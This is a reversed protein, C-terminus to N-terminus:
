PPIDISVVSNVNLENLGIAISKNAASDALVNLNRLIHFYKIKRFSNAKYRIRRILRAIREKKGRSGGNLEQIILKSDGFVMVEDVGKDKLQKLGQWLGYTEAMNNSDYGINWFYEVVKNGGPDFIVGGGGARGPNGKSSGDFFLKFIKRERLWNEFQSKDLRIEWDEVKNVAMNNVTKIDLSYMWNKENVTLNEQNNPIKSIRVVEKLLANIKIITKWAPQNKDQFIRHNREIWLCWCIIKPLKMWCAKLGKKNTLEGQYFNDWSLFCVQINDPLHM